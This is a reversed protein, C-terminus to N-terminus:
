GQPAAAGEPLEVHLDVDEDVLIVGSELVFDFAHGGSRRADDIFHFHYGAGTIGQAYDPTRFGVLSGEIDTFRSVVQNATAQVLPRYPVSQRAATRTDIRRFRGNVRIPYFHDQGSVLEDVTVELEQRSMAEDVRLGADGRFITVVAFPTLETPDAVTATGDSHLHFFQGDLAVMEGDLGNFTGVGFDGHGAIEGYTATGDYAAAVLASMTSTQYIEHARGRDAHVRNDGAYHASATKALDWCHWDPTPASV